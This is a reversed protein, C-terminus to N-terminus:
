VAGESTTMLNYSLIITRLSSSYIQSFIAVAQKLIHGLRETPPILSVRLLDWATVPNWGPNSVPMEQICTFRVVVQALKHIIFFQPTARGNTRFTGEPNISIQLRELCQRRRNNCNDATIGGPKQTV